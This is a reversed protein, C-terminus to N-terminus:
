SDGRILAVFESPLDFSEAITAWLNRHEQAVEAIQCFLPFAVAFDDVGHDIIFSYALDKKGVISPHRTNAIAEYNIMNQEFSIALNFGVWSPVPDAIPEPNPIIEIEEDSEIFDQWVKQLVSLTPETVGSFNPEDNIWPLISITDNCELYITTESRKM